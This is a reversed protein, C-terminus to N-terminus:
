ISQHHNVIWTVQVSGSPQVMPGSRFRPGPWYRFSPTEQLEHAANRCTAMDPYTITTECGAKFCRIDGVAVSAGLSTEGQWKQFVARADNTWPGDDAGSEELAKVRLDRQVSPEPTSVPAVPQGDTNAAALAPAFGSRPGRPARTHQPRDPEGRQHLTALVYGGFAFTAAAVVPILVNLWNATSRSRVTRSAHSPTTEFQHENTINDMAAPRWCLGPWTLHWSLSSRSVRAWDPSRAAHRRPFTTERVM